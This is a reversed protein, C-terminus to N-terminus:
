IQRGLSTQFAQVLTYYDDMEDSSLGDGISAFACQRNSFTDPIGENILNLCGLYLNGNLMTTSTKSSTTVTGNKLKHFENSGSARSAQYFGNSNSGLGSAGATEASNVARYEDGGFNMNIYLGGGTVGSYIGMESGEISSNTRSYYTLHASNQALTTSPNLYTNAYQSTGNWAIGNTSHTPSGTFTLRYAADLDRPDVLNYKHTAATGGIMPYVAKMKSWIGDSKMGVVLNDVATAQTKNVIVGEAMLAEIYAIADADTMDKIIISNMYTTLSDLLDSHESVLSAGVYFLAIEADSYVSNSVRDLTFNADPIATSSSTRTYSVAGAFHTVSTSSTRNHSLLGRNSFDAMATVGGASGSNIRNATSSGLNTLTEASNGVVGVIGYNPGLPVSYSWVGKSADDLTYNVGHTNANFNTDVYSTLADGKIGQDSTWTPTNLYTCQNANPNIWNLTAFEQSGDNAFIYLADLKSWIGAAKLESVLSNQLLQELSSPLTYGLSIARNLVSQYETEYSPGSSWILLSGLRVENVSLSGFKINTIDTSGLKM